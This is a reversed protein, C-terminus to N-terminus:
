ACSYSHPTRVIRISNVFTLFDRVVVSRSPRVLWLSVTVAFAAAESPRSVSIVSIIDIINYINYLISDYIYVHLEKRSKIWVFKGRCRLLRVLAFLYIYIYLKLSVVFFLNVIIIFLAATAPRTATTINKQKAAMYLLRVYRKQTISRLQYIPLLEFRLLFFIFFYVYLITNYSM